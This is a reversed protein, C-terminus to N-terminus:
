SCGASCVPLAPAAPLHHTQMHPFCGPWCASLLGRAAQTPPRAMCQGAPQGHQKGVCLVLRPCRGDRRCAALPGCAAGDLARVKVLEAPSLVVSLVAGAAAASLPVAAAEPLALRPGQTLGLMAQYM